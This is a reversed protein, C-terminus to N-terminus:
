NKKLLFWTCDDNPSVPDHHYISKYDVLSLDPFMDMMESAFDHKFLRNEYNMYSAIVPTPTYYESLLIYKKSFSYPATTSSQM